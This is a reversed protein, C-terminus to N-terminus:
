EDNYAKSQLLTNRESLTLWDNISYGKSTLWTNWDDLTNELQPTNIYYDGDRKTLRIIAKSNNLSYTPIFITDLLTNGDIEENLFSVPVELFAYYRDNHLFDSLM